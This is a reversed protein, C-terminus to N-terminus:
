DEESARNTDKNKRAQARLVLQAERFVPDQWLKRLTAGTKASSESTQGERMKETYKFLEEPSKDQLVRLQRESAINSMREYFEPDSWLNKMTQSRIEATLGEHMKRSIELLEERSQNNRREKVAKSQKERTEPSLKKGLNALRMNQRTEETPEWGKNSGATPMINFGRKVADLLDIWYQERLFLDNPACEELVIFNFESEGYENWKDQLKYNYHTNNRLGSRHSRWRNEINVGSGVYVQETERFQIKYVGSKM